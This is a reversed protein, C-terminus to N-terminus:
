RARRAITRAISKARGLFMLICPISIGRRRNVPHAASYKRSNMQMGTKAM